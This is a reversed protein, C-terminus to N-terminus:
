KILGLDKRLNIVTRGCCEVGNEKFIAINEKISLEPRYLHRIRDRVPQPQKTKNRPRYDRPLGLDKRLKQLTSKSCSIGNEKLLEINQRYSLNPNYLDKITNRRYKPHPRRYRLGNYSLNYSRDCYELNSVRNDSKVENKHNIETNFINDNEIFAQAVLRHIYFNKQRGDRKLNVFLYGNHNKAPRM